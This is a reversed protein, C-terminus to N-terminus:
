RVSRIQVDKVGELIIDRQYGTGKCCNGPPQSYGLLNKKLPQFPELIFANYPSYRGDKFGAMHSQSCCGQNGEMNGIAPNVLDCSDDGAIRFNGM